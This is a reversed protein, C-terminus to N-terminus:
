RTSFKELSSYSTFCVGYKLEISDFQTFFFSKIRLGNKFHRKVIVNGIRFFNTKPIFKTSSIGSTAWNQTFYQIENQRFIVKFYLRFNVTDFQTKNQIM